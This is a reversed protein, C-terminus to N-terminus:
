KLVEELARRTFVASMDRKYWASGRPDDTPDVIATVTQSIEKLKEYTLSSQQMGILAEELANARIATPAVAGLAVRVDAVKGDTIKGIAAVSVTAYDDETRPLYKIYTWNTGEPQVPIHLATIIEEPELSTEYYDTYVEHIPLTRSGNSSTATISANLILLSSPPDMAPDAQAIGGAVTAVNRVRVTAVRRYAEALIPTHKQVLDSLEMERQTVLGGINLYGDTLDISNLGPIRHLSIIHSPAILSQKLLTTLSTGGALIKSDDSHESLLDLAEKLSSPAHFHFDHM